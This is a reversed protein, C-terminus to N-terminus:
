NDRVFNLGYIADPYDPRATLAEQFSNLADERKGQRYLGWGKWLLAEESNPTRKLAYDILAMLDDIRNTHFYAFFPGFQYRLM